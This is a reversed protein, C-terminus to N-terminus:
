TRSEHEMVLVVNGKKHGKEVYSHAEAAQEIPFSRDIPSRIKGTEILERVLILDEAKQSASIACIVKKSGILKTMLMQLLQGTKFSALLYRGDTSLSGKCRSFSSKGLIDLIVDYTEGSQTFDDTTYDIVKDIGLSKVFDLRPTGCVGTVEAGYHKALQAAPAGIAGSAGNILVKQGSQIDVKKLLDLAVM